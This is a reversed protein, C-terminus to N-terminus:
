TSLLYNHVSSIIKTYQPSHDLSAPLAIWLRRSPSGFADPPRDLPAPIAPPRDLPAPLATPGPPRDLPAPLAPPGPPRDLPAPLAPPLRRAYVYLYICLCLYVYIPTPPYISSSLCLYAYTSM